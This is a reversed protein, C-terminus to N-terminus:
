TWLSKGVINLDIFRLLPIRLLSIPRIGISNDGIRGSALRIRPKMLLFVPRLALGSTQSSHYEYGHGM